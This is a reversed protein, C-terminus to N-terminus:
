MGFNEFLSIAKKFISKQDTTGTSTNQASDRTAIDIQNRNFGQSLLQQVANNAETSNEFLGVVTQAM